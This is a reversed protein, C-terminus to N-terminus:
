DDDQKLKIDYSSPGEIVNGDIDFRSGHCPCDWTKDLENFILNCKMHPCTNKVKHLKGSKDQYIGIRIEDEYTVAVNNHYFTQNQVLKAKLISKTNQYNDLFFNKVKEFNIKRSPLFLNMYKNEQGMIYDRIILSSTISNTMGWKNFGTIIYLNPNSKNIPGILPLSDNTMVDHTHWLYEEKKQFKQLVTDSVEQAMKEQDFHNSTKFTQSAFLLYNKDGSAYRYSETAKDNNIAQDPTTELTPIAAVYAEEIHSRLPIWGPHLFFPYHTAVIVNKALITGNSTEVEYLDGKKTITKAGVHEYIHCGSELIINALAYLYQVPNFVANGTNKQAKLVQITETPFPLTVNMEVDIKLKQYFDFEKEFQKQKTEDNTFVYACTNEFHCDIANTDINHKVQKIADMNAEYYLRATDFDYIKELKQYCLEQMFTLKGTTRATVGFGIQDREILAIQNKKHRLEFLISIGALGGGIILTEIELHKPCKKTKLKPISNTWLTQEKMDDGNSIHNM